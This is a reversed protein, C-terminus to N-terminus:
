YTVSATLAGACLWYVFRRWNGESLYVAAAAVDLIILLTPFLKPNM